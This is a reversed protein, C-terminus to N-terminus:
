SQSKLASSRDRFGAVVLVILLVAGVGMAGLSVYLPKTSPRFSFEVTHAGPSLYVGRMVYNCRLLPAPQGDVTVMWNPDYHDNLLLVAPANSVSAKLVIQKPAYSAFEVTGAENTGTPAPLSSAVLVTQHPDFAPSALKELTASDNTNVEWHSYLKARPLAGTFEIMAFPGNTSFEATLDSLKEPQVIGPKFLINFQGAVRFREHGPDFQKNLLDVFGALGLIGRTSTLEWRRAALRLTDASRVQLADEFAVYDVPRRPLQIIDLSPINYYLFLHQAWEGGYLQNLYQETRRAQDPVQFAGLIWEPLIAVRQELADKRLRDIVPNSAYKEPYNWYIIWPLNARGLDVVLILGLLAMGLRARKGAFYGSMVLAVAALALTLFLVFWGVQRISFSAIAAASAPDFQVKGLYQQLRTGASAYALWGILVAGLGIMSGAVWRKEFPTSNARWYKWQDALGRVAGVPSNVLRQSLGHAGYAFLVLGAWEAIYMFKAPNRITSAYPLMYFFQYFPAFRGWALLVCVCALAFWFWIFKRQVESFVSNKGRLSQLLAWLAVLAVLTGGYIGSGSYRITARPPPGQMGSEFYRDWAPDSGTLGWYQGGDPTDMRYGFLGPIFEGLTEVKPLSWQTAFTWQAQKTEEDQKTGAVGSINAGILASLAQAALFAAFGAVLVLRLVGLGMKKGPTGEEAAWAQYVVYIGVVVSFLAAVDFGEMIGFGVLFGALVVRGWRRWGGGGQVLGMAVFAAGLALPRSVQGWCTTSFYDSHLSAALGALGCALPSFKQTRCFYWVCVGLIILSVPQWFKAYLVPGGFWLALTSVDPPLSGGNLGLWNSDIWWGTIANPVKFSESATLGLPADNDFLIMGPLLSRYFLAAFVVLLCALFIVFERRQNSSRSNPTNPAAM